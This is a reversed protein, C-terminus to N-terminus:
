APDESIYSISITRQILNHKVLFYKLFDNDIHNFKRVLIKHNKKLMFCTVNSRSSFGKGRSM